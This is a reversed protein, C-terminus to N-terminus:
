MLGVGMICVDDVQELAGKWNGFLQEFAKQQQAPSHAANAMLVEKFQKQKLKKGHPGGFQDTYGDTFLYFYTGPMYPIAHTTFPKPEFNYGISQKDPKIETFGNQGTYWLPNNAGSWNISQTDHNIALLSIDMGDKVEDISKEFAELVLATVKDLIRGTDTLRYEKVARNLANSCVISVMAGPVGHGTCDAVAIFLTGNVEEMWYFDGAIIDKPKYLVFSYPMKSRILEVPPLIAEQIRRAYTISDLTEKQHHAIILKQKEANEYNRALQTNQRSTLERFYVLTYFMFGCVVSVNMLFFFNIVGSGIVVHQPYIEQAAVSVGCLAIFLAFWAIGAKRGKFFLAGVPALMAWLIVAGSNVFGGLVVQLLFPVVLIFLIYSYLAADFNKTKFLYFTTLILIGLYVLPYIAAFSLGLSLYMVVWGICGFSKFLVTLMLVSKNIRESESDSERAAINKLGNLVSM